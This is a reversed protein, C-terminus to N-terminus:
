GRISNLTLIVNKLKKIEDLNKVNDETSKELHEIYTNVLHFFSLVHKDVSIGDSIIKWYESNYYNLLEILSFVVSRNTKIEGKKIKSLFDEIVSKQLELILEIDKLKEQDNRPENKIKNNFLGQKEDERLEKVIDPEIL